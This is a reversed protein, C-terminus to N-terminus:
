NYDSWMKTSPHPRYANDIEEIREFLDLWTPNLGEILEIKWDRRYRKLSKERQIALVITPHREFWVLKEVRYKATFGEHIHNRHEWIRGTLDSTVGIYIVGRPKDSMMYVFGTM